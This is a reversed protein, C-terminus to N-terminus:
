PKSVAIHRSRNVHLPFRDNNSCLLLLTINGSERFGKSGAGPPQLSPLDVGAPRLNKSHFFYPRFLFFMHCLIHIPHLFFAATRCQAPRPLQGLSHCHLEGRDAVLSDSESCPLGAPTQRDIDPLRCQVTIM